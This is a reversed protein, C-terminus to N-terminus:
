RKEAQRLVTVSQGAIGWNDTNVEDIVVVWDCGDAEKAGTYMITATAKKNEDEKPQALLHEFYECSTFASMIIIIGALFLRQTKM